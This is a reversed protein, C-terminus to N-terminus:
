KRFSGYNHPFIIYMYIFKLPKENRVLVNKDGCLANRNPYLLAATTQADMCKMKHVHYVLGNHAEEDFKASM